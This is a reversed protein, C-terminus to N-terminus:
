KYNLNIEFPAGSVLCRELIDRMGKSFAVKAARTDNATQADIFLGFDRIVVSAPSKAFAPTRRAITQRVATLIELIGNAAEPFARAFALECFWEPIFAASFASLSLAVRAQPFLPATPYCTVIGLDLLKQANASYPPPVSSLTPVNAEDSAAATPQETIANSSGKSSHLLHVALEAIFGDSASNIGLSKLADICQPLTAQIGSQSLPLRKRLIERVREEDWAKIEAMLPRLADEGRRQMFDAAVDPFGASILVASMMEDIEQETLNHETQADTRLKEEITLAFQDVLWDDDVGHNLFAERLDANLKDLDLSCKYGDDDVAFIQQEPIFIM